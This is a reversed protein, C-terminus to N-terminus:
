AYVVESLELICEKLEENEAQLQEMTVRKQEALVKEEEVKELYKNAVEECSLSIDIGYSSCIVDKFQIEAVKNTIDDVVLFIEDSEKIYMSNIVDIASVGNIEETKNWVKIM